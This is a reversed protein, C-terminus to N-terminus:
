EPIRGGVVTGVREELDGDVWVDLGEIREEGRVSAFTQNVMPQRVNPRLGEEVAQVAGRLTCGVFQSNAVLAHRQLFGKKRRGVFECLVPLDEWGLASLSMRCVAALKRSSEFIPDIISIWVLEYSFKAVHRDHDLHPRVGVARPGM